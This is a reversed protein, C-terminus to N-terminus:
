GTAFDTTDLVSFGHPLPTSHASSSTSVARKTFFRRHSVAVILVKMFFAIEAHYEKIGKSVPLVQERM